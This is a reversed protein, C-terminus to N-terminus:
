RASQRRRPRSGNTRGNEITCHAETGRIIGLVFWTVCVLVGIDRVSDAYSLFRARRDARPYTRRRDGPGTDLRDMRGPQSLATYFHHRGLPKRDARRQKALKLLLRRMVFSVLATVLVVAFVQVVWAHEPNLGPIWKELEFM